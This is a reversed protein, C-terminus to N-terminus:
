VMKNLIILFDDKSIYNTEKCIRGDKYFRFYPVSSNRLMSEKFVLFEKFYDEKNYELEYIAIDIDIKLKYIWSKIYQWQPCWDQTLIIVVNSSSKLIDEGFEGNTIAYRAQEKTILYKNIM